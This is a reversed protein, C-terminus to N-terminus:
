SSKVENIAKSNEQVRVHKHGGERAYGACHTVLLRDVNKTNKM